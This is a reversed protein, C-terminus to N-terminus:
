AAGLSSAAGTVRRLLVQLNEGFPLTGFADKPLKALEAKAKAAKSAM